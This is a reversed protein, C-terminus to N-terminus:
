RLIIKRDLPKKDGSPSIVVVGLELTSAPSSSGAVAVKWVARGNTDTTAVESDTTRGTGGLSFNVEADPMPKGKDDTVDAVIRITEPLRVSEPYKLKVKPRGDIRIVNVFDTQEQGAADTSTATIRNRGRKLRVLMSAEGSPGVVAEDDFSNADNVVRVTAGVESSFEVVIGDDYTEVKNEPSSITVKAKTEDLIVVVPESVPGPGDPGGLAATLSNEGPALRVGEVTVTTGTKPKEVVYIKDANYVYLRLLKRPVADDPPLEVAVAIEVEPTETRDGPSTITPQVTPVQGDGPTSSFSPSPAEAIVGPQQPEGQESPSIMALAIAGVIAAIVLAVGAWRAPSVEPQESSKAGRGSSSRKTTGSAKASAMRRSTPRTRSTIDDMGASQPVSVYFVM